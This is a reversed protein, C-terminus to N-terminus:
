FFVLNSQQKKIGFREAEKRALWASALNDLQAYEGNFLTRVTMGPPSHLRIEEDVMGANFGTVVVAETVGAAALERLQWALLSCREAVHLLCKPRDDTLPRLRTGQGASLIIAKM